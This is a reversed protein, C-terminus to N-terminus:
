GGRIRPPRRSVRRGPGVTWVAGGTMLAEDALERILDDSVDDAIVPEDNKM